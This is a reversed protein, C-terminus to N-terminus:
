ELQADVEAEKKRSKATLLGNRSNTAKAAYRAGSEGPQPNAEVPQLLDVKPPV